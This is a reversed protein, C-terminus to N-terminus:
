QSMRRSMFAVPLLSCLGKVARWLARGLRALMPAPSLSELRDAMTVSELLRDVQKLGLEHELRWLHYRDNDVQWM